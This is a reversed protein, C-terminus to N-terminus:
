DNRYLCLTVLSWINSLFGLVHLAMQFKGWFFSGMFARSLAADDQNGIHRLSQIFRAALFSIPLCAVMFSAALLIPWAARKPMRGNNFFLFAALVSLLTGGLAMVPYFWQGNGLDAHRSYDAWAAFGIQSWAPRAVIARDVNGGALLGNLITAALSVGLVIRAKNKDTANRLIIHTSVVIYHFLYVRIDLSHGTDSGNRSPFSRAKVDLPCQGNRGHPQDPRWVTFM